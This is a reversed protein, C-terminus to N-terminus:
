TPNFMLKVANSRGEYKVGFIENKLNQCFVSKDILLYGANVTSGYHFTKYVKKIPKCHSFIDSETERQLHDAHRLSIEEKVKDSMKSVPDLFRSWSFVTRVCLQRVDTADCFLKM